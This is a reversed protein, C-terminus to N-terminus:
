VYSSWGRMGGAEILAVIEKYQDEPLDYVGYRNLLKEIEQAAGEEDDIGENHMIGNITNKLTTMQVDTLGEAPEGSKVDRNKAALSANYQRQAEAFEKAWQEDAVKDREQQYAFEKEQWYRDLQDQYRGYETDRLDGLMAYEQYLADGEQAYRDAAAGALEPVVGNLQQLYANYAQQGANQSYTSGYGGTLGAAQGMTDQMAQQGQQMYLDRYQQYIADDNVNYSFKERNMIKQFLSDLQADYSASYQPTQQAQVAPATTATNSKTLSGWTENGAIGDVKLSNKRQYDQVATRTANGFIGDEKLNYGNENLKKQLETVDNGRSGYSVSTYAM